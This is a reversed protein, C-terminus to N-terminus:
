PSSRGLRRRLRLLQPVLRCSKVALTFLGTASVGGRRSRFGIDVWCIRRQHQLVVALFLNALDVNDPVLKLADALVATPILRYPVNADPVRIGTCLAVQLGLLRSVLRRAVSDERLTRRGFVAAHDQKRQWLSAFFRPDCQGDSDIQFVHRAGRSMAARYGVMCTRGHGTNEKNMSVVEANASELMRIVRLSDDSSGDNILCFQFDLGHARLCALWEEVVERLSEQENYVPAIVWLDTKDPNM